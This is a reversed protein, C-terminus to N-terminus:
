VAFDVVVVDDIDCFGYDCLLAGVEDLLRCLRRGCCCQFRAM